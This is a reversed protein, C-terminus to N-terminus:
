AGLADEVVQATGLLLEEGRLPGVLQLSAPVHSGPIPVPQATCPNGAANFLAVHKTIEIITALLTDADIDTIAPPFIPLTPLALLEVRSFLEALQARWGVLAHRADGVGTRFLEATAVTQAIDAGVGEPNAEVLTHDVDQMEAFYITAFAEGGADMGEWDLCVVDFGAAHLASDIAAEIDPHGSTRVRGVVRAPSPAPVFGPELLQMGLTLGSVRAAMPGITDLTPALPWM